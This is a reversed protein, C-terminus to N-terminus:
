SAGISFKMASSGFQFIGGFPASPPTKTPSTAPTPPVEEEKEGEKLSFGFQEWFVALRSVPSSRKSLYKSRRNNAQNNIVPQTSKTSVHISPTRKINRRRPRNKALKARQLARKLNREAVRRDRDTSQRTHMSAVSLYYQFPYSPAHATMLLHVHNADVPNVFFRPSQNIQISQNTDVSQIISNM